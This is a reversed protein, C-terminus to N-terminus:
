RRFRGAVGTVMRFAMLIINIIAFTTFVALFTLIFGFGARIMLIWVLAIIVIRFILSKSM